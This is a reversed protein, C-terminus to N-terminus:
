FATRRTSRPADKVRNFCMKDVVTVDKWTQEAAALPAAAFIVLALVALVAVPKKM